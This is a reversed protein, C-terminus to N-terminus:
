PLEWFYTRVNNPGMGAEGRIEGRRMMRRIESGVSSVTRGMGDAIERTSHPGPNRELWVSVAGEIRRRLKPRQADTTPGAWGCTLCSPDAGYRTVPGACRPCRAAATASM